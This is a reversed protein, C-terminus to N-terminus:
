RNTLPQEVAHSPGLRVLHVPIEDENHGKQVEVMETMRRGKPTMELHCILDIASRMLRWQPPVGVEECFQAFRDFVRSANTAHVTTIGGRHGTDWAKLLELGAKDRTEGIVLRDPARRMCRKVQELMTPHPDGTKYRSMNPATCQLEETDEVLIVHEHSGILQLCANALTTKGSNTAGSIVVNSRGRVHKALAEAQWGDVIGKAVYDTLSYVEPAHRRIVFSPGPSSPPISGEVRDGTLPLEGSLLPTSPNLTKGLLSAMTNLARLRHDASLSTHTDEWGVVHKRLWLKGDEGVKIETVALDTLAACILPELDYRLQEHLRELKEREASM